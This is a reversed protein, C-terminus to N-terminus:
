FAVIVLSNPKLNEIEFELGRGEKKIKRNECERLALITLDVIWCKFM